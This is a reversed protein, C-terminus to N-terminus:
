IIRFMRLVLYLLTSATGGIISAFGVVLRWTLKFDHQWLSILDNDKELVVVRAEVKNIRDNTSGKLEDLNTMIQDVKSEMRILTTHDDIQMKQLDMDSKM